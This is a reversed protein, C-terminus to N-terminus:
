RRARKSPASSGAGGGAPAADGDGADAKGDPALGDQVLLSHLRRQLVAKRGARTAGRVALEEKLLTLKMAEFPVGGGARMVGAAFMSRTVRVPRLPPGGHTEVNRM